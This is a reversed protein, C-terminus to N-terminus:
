SHKGHWAGHLGEYSTAVRSFVSSRTDLSLLDSRYFTQTGVTSIEVGHDNPGSRSVSTVPYRTGSRAPLIREGLGAISVGVDAQLPELTYEVGLGLLSSTM